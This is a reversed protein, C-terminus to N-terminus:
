SSSTTVEELFINIFHNAAAPLTENKRWILASSTSIVPEAIKKIILSSNPLLNIAFEPVIATGLGLSAWTLLPVIEDSVCFIAPEFGQERCYDTIISEYRRHILLPHNKLHTLHVKEPNTDSIQAPTVMIMGESPIAIHEYLSSDVPLRVFGIDILHSNLQDLIHQTDGQRLDFSVLPYTQHFKRIYQPLLLRGSSNLIGITLKGRVGNGTERVENTTLQILDLIQEARRKLVCGAETLSIHKKTRQFLRVGLEKELLLMQQSLPSQTIHLRNAAKTILGEEAVSLFYKLQRFEM